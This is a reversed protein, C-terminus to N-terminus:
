VSKIFIVTTMNTNKGLLNSWSFGGGVATGETIQNTQLDEVDDLAVKKISNSKVALKRAEPDQHRPIGRSPYFDSQPTGLDVQGNPFSLTTVIASSMILATFAWGVLERHMRYCFINTLMCIQHMMIRYCLYYSSIIYFDIMKKATNWTRTAM